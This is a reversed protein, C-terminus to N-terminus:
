RFSLPCWDLSGGEPQFRRIMESTFVHAAERRDGADALDGQIDMRGVIPGRMTGDPWVAYVTGIVHITAM